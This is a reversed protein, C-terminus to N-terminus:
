KRGTKKRRNRRAAAPVGNTRESLMKKEKRYSRQMINIIRCCCAPVRTHTHLLSLSNLSDLPDLVQVFNHLHSLMLCMNLDKDKM